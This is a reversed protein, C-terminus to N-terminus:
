HSWNGDHGRCWGGNAWRWTEVCRGSRVDIQEVVMPAGDDYMARYCDDLSRFSRDSYPDYYAYEDYPCAPTTYIVRTAPYTHEVVVHHNLQSGIVLGGIFSALVPGANDHAYYGHSYSVSHGRGHNGHGHEGPGPKWRKWPGDDAHAASAILVLGAMILTGIKRTNM